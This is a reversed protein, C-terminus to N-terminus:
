GFLIISNKNFVNYCFWMNNIDKGINIKGFNELLKM